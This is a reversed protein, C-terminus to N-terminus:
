LDPNLFWGRRVKSTLLSWLIKINIKLIFVIQISIYNGWKTALYVKDEETLDAGVDPLDVQVFPNDNSPYPSSWSGTNTIADDTWLLNLNQLM